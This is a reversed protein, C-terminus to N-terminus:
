EKFGDLDLFMVGLSSSEENLALELQRDLESTFMRRNPLKTLEDYNALQTAEIEQQLRDTIDQVVIVTREHDLRDGNTVADLVRGTATRYQHEMTFSQSEDGHIKRMNEVFDIELDGTVLFPRISVNEAPNELELLLSFSQNAKLITLDATSVIAIAMQNQEFLNQFLDTSPSSLLPMQIPTDLHLDSHSSPDSM